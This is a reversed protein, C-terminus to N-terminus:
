FPQSEKDLLKSIESMRSSTQAILAEVRELRKSKAQEVEKVKVLAESVIALDARMKLVPKPLTQGDRSANDDRLAQNVIEVEKEMVIASAAIKNLNDRDSGDIPKSTFVMADKIWKDMYQAGDTESEAVQGFMEEWKRLLLDCKIQLKAKEQVSFKSRIVHSKVLFKVLQGRLNNIHTSSAAETRIQTSLTKYETELGHM